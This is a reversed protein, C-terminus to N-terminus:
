GTGDLNVKLRVRTETTNRTIEAIRDANPSPPLEILSHNNSM